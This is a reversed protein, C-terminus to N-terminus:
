NCWTPYLGAETVVAHNLRSLSPSFTLPERCYPEHGRLPAIARLFVSPADNSWSSPGTRRSHPGQGTKTRSKPGLRKDANLRLM